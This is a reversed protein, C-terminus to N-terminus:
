ANDKDLKRQHEMGSQYATVCAARVNCEDNGYPCDRWVQIANDIQATAYALWDPPTHQEDNM